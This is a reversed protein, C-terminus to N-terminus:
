CPRATREHIELREDRRQLTAIQAARRDIHQRLLRRSSPLTNNPAPM